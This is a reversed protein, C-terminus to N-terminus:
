QEDEPVPRITIECDGVDFMDDFSNGGNILNDYDIKAMENADETNYDKESADYTQTVTIKLRAM